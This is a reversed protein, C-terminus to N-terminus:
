QVRECPKPWLVFSGEVVIANSKQLFYITFGYLMKSITTLIVASHIATTHMSNM